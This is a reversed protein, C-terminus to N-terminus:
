KFDESRDRAWQPIPMPDGQENIYVFVVTVDSFREEQNEPSTRWGELHVTVSTKGLKELRAYITFVDGPYLAKTFDISLHRTTMRSLGLFQRVATAGALDYESLIAGGFVTGHVNVDAPLIMRMAVCHGRSTSGSTSSTQSEQISAELSSDTTSNTQKAQM